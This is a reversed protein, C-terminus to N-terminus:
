VPAGSCSQRHDQLCVPSRKEQPKWHRPDTISTQNEDPKTKFPNRCANKKVPGAKAKPQVPQEKVLQTGNPGKKLFLQNEDPPSDFPNLDPKEGKEPVGVPPGATPTGSLRALIGSWPNSESGEQKEVNSDNGKTVVGASM